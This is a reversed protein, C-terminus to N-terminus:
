NQRLVLEFRTGNGTSFKITRGADGIAKVRLTNADPREVRTFVDTDHRYHLDGLLPGRPDTEVVLNIFEGSVMGVREDHGRIVIPRPKLQQTEFEWQRDERRGDLEMSLDVRYRAGWRLRQMPYLAYHGLEFKNHPDTDATLLRTDEIRNGTEVDTIELSLLRHEAVHVPNVQVSVPYGSYSRDPLPDPSEEYFAPPIHAAGPPPWLILQDVLLAPAREAERFRSELLMKDRQCANLVLRGTLRERPQRCLAEIANNAMLYVMGTDTGEGEIGVGIHTVKPDLFGFRHYIAAMLGALSGTISDDGKSLNESVLRSAYGVAGARDAPQEGTFARGSPRQGHSASQNAVLYRAHAVAAEELRADYDLLGLGAADRLQNVLRYAQEHEHAWGAPGALLLGPLLLWAPLCAAPLRM